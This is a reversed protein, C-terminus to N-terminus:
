RGPVRACNQDAYLTIAAATDNRAVCDWGGGIAGTSSIIHLNPYGDCGGGTQVFGAPCAPANVEATSNAAVSISNTVITTELATAPSAVFAGFLDVVANATYSAQIWFEQAVAPNQDMTLIGQNSARANPGSQDWSVLITAGASATPKVAMWGPAGVPSLATVNMVLAGFSDQGVGFLVTPNCGASGGYAAGNNVLDYGRSGTIPGGVSRTDIYRCPSIPKYVLDTSASGLADPEPASVASVLEDPTAVTQLRQLRSVSMPLLSELSAQRWGESLGQAEAHPALRDVIATALAVREELKSM